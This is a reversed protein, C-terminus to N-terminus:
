PNFENVYLSLYSLITMLDTVVVIGTSADNDDLTRTIKSTFILDLLTGAVM